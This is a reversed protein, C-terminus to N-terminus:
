RGVMPWDISSARSPGGIRGAETDHRDREGAITMDTALFDEGSGAIVPM